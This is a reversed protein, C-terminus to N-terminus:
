TICPPHGIGGVFGFPLGLFFEIGDRPIFKSVARKALAVEPNIDTFPWVFQNFMM